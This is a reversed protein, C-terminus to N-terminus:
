YLNKWDTPVFSSRNKKEEEPVDPQSLSLSIKGRSSSKSLVSVIRWRLRAAVTTAIVASRNAIAASQLSAASTPIPYLTFILGIWPVVYEYKTQWASSRFGNVPFIRVPCAARPHSGLGLVPLFFWDFLFCDGYRYCHVIISVKRHIGPNIGTHFSTWYLHVRM